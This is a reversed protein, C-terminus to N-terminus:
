GECSDSPFTQYYNSCATQRISGTTTIKDDSVCVAKGPILNSCNLDPNFALLSQVPIRFVSVIDACTDSKFLTYYNNCASNVKNNDIILSCTAVFGLLLRIYNM